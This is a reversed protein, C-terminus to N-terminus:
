NAEEVTTTREKDVVRQLLAAYRPNGRLSV